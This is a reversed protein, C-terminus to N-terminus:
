LVFRKAYSNEDLAPLEMWELIDIYYGGGYNIEVKVSLATETPLHGFWDYLKGFLEGEDTIVELVGYDINEGSINFIAVEGCPKMPEGHTGHNWIELTMLAM